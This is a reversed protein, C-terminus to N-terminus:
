STVSAQTIWFDEWSQFSHDFQALEEFAENISPLKSSYKFLQKHAWEIDDPTFITGIWSYKPPAIIENWSTHDECVYNLETIDPNIWTHCDSWTNANELNCLLIYVQAFNSSPASITTEFYGPDWLDERYGTLKFVKLNPDDLDPHYRHGKQLCLPNLM